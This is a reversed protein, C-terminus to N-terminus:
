EGSGARWEGDAGRVEYPRFRAKYELSRCGEVFYGLYVHPLKWETAKRVISLVNFTGLSRKREDPDHFFYIASLGEPLCDVYGVGVLKRGLYYRWEQTVFPNEVFSEAYASPDKPGHHSWGVHESQFAHFRDYLELKEETVEPAGIVVRVAGDNAALCRRQSRDPAFTGVPVRLSQCKSCAPCTPHFLSFGFRRWGAKLRAQYETPTIRGVIEYTLASTEHPLYACPSRPATFVFLSHM